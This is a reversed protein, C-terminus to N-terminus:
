CVFIKDLCHNLAGNRLRAAIDSVARKLYDFLQSERDLCRETFASLMDTLVLETEADSQKLLMTELYQYEEPRFGETQLPKQLLMHGTLNQLVPICLNEILHRYDEHYATFVKLIYARDFQRLFRQELFVCSTYELVADIGAADGIGGLIPYDLTLLTEQPAYLADYHSLFWVLGKVITDHLCESGYADFGGIHANYLTRLAVTKELVIQRGALYAEKAPKKQDKARPATSSSNQAPSIGSPTDFILGEYERICYLVAEMLSQAKEYPLSSHEFGTYKIALEAVVPILEEPPYDIHKM